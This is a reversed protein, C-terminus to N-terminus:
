GMAILPGQIACPLGSSVAFVLAVFKVVLTKFSLTGHVIVGNLFAIVEPVGSGAAAPHVVQGIFYTVITIINFYFM